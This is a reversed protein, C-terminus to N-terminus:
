HAENELNVKMMVEGRFGETPIIRYDTNYYSFIFQFRDKVSIGSSLAFEADSPYITLHSGIVFTNILQIMNDIKWVGGGPFLEYAATPDIKLWRMIQFEDTIFANFYRKNKLPEGRDGKTMGSSGLINLGSVGIGMKDIKYFVGLDVDFLTGKELGVGVLLPDGPNFALYQPFDDVERRHSVALGASLVNKGSIVFQHDFLLNQVNERVVGQDFNILTVGIGSNISNIRNEYGLYMQASHSIDNTSSQLFDASFSQINELGVSAPNVMKQDYIRFEFSPFLPQARVSIGLVVFGFVIFAKKANM